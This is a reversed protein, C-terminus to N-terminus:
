RDRRGTEVSCLHPRLRAGAVRVFVHMGWVGGWTHRGELGLESASGQRRRGCHQQVAGM